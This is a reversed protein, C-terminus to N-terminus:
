EIVELTFPRVRRIARFDRGNQTIVAAGISRASLAILVDNVLAAVGAPNYGYATHLRALVAGADEYVRATPLLIRGARAFPTTMRDVLRRDRAVLAGARLEMLVLASLYKVADRQFLVAEHQRANLWDIYLNSDIVVRRLRM